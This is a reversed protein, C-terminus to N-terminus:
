ALLAGWGFLVTAAAGLLSRVNHLGGWRMLLRRSEAGADKASMALLRKNTPMIVLLTFPWNAILVIGGALWQWDGSVHWSVVGLVSGVIALGAQIPLARKYSPRWQALAPGDGLGLRVPHEVLTIYLAASTFVAALTFPALFLMSM